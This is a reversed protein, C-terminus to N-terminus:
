EKLDKLMWVECSYHGTNGMPGNLHQFGYNEYIHIAAELNSASELYCKEYGFDKAAQICKNFFPKGYGKRRISPAFYMKQLECINEKSGELKKIGGGGYVKGDIEIVFYVERDSQYTEYMTTLAKDQFTTGVTPLGFEVLSNKIIQEIEPNDKAEIKRIIM